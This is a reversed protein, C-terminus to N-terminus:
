GGGQTHTGFCSPGIPPYSLLLGGASHSWDPRSNGWLSEHSPIHVIPGVVLPGVATATSASKTDISRSGLEYKHYSLYAKIYYSGRSGRLARAASWSPFKNVRKRSYPDARLAHGGSTLSNLLPPVQPGRPACAVSAGFTVLYTYIHTTHRLLQYGAETRENVSLLIDRCSSAM